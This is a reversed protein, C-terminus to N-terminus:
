ARLAGAGWSALAVPGGMVVAWIIWEIGILRRDHAFYFWDVLADVTLGSFAGAVTTVTLVGVRSPSFWGGLAGAVLAILLPALLNPFQMRQAVVPVLAGATFLLVM